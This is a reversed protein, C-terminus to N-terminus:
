AVYIYACLTEQSSILVKELLTEDSDKRLLNSALDYLDDYSFPDYYDVVSLSALAPFQAITQTFRPSSPDLLLAIHFNSRPTFRFAYVIPNGRM